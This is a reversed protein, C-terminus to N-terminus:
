GHPPGKPVIFRGASNRKRNRGTGTPILLTPENLVGAEAIMLQDFRPEPPRGSNETIVGMLNTAITSEAGALDEQQTQLREVRMIGANNILVNLAPYLM